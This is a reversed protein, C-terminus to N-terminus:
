AAQSKLKVINEGMLIARAAARTPTEGQSDDIHQLWYHHTKAVVTIVSKVQDKLEFGDDGPVFLSEGECRADVNELIITACLWAAMKKSACDIRLWGGPASVAELGTTELIGRKVERVMESDVIADPASQPAGLAEDIGRHPPGGYLALECFGQWMTGWDPSGDERFLFPAAAMQADIIPDGHHDMAELRKISPAAAIAEPWEAEEVMWLGVDEQLFTSLTACFDQLDPLCAMGRSRTPILLVANSMAM